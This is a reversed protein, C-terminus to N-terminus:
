IDDEMMWRDFFFFLFCQFTVIMVMVSVSDVRGDM